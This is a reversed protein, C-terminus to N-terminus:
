TERRRLIAGAISVISGADEDAPCQDYGTTEIVAPGTFALTFAIPSLGCIRYRDDIRGVARLVAEPGETCASLLEDDALRVKHKDITSFPSPDGFAPGVHALDAAAVAVVRRGATARRLAELARGTPHEGDPIAGALMYPQPHGCLVPIVTCPEGGRVHHLWVAALEVSHEARHHLEEAFAAEEGLAEAMADVVDPDGPLVGWPTAYPRRALTLTGPSGGHDTGFIVVVEAARLAPAARRWLKAYVPWGRQYDIHPSILAVVGDTEAETAEVKEEFGKLLASLEVPDSPYVRDALAPPRFPAAHLADRARRLAAAYVEDELLCAESLTDILERLHSSEFQLGYRLALEVRLRHLTRSGDLLALLPGLHVPVLLQQPALELPDHLHFFAAGNEAVRRVDLPRLGPLITDDFM